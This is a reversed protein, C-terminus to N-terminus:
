SLGHIWANSLLENDEHYSALHATTIVIPIYGVISYLMLLSSYLLPPDLPPPATKVLYKLFDGPGTVGRRDAEVIAYRVVFDASRQRVSVM